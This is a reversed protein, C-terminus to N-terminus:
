HGKEIIKDAWANKVEQARERDRARRDRKAVLHKNGPWFTDLYKEGRHKWQSPKM